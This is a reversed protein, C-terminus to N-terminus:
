VCGTECTGAVSDGYGGKRAGSLAPKEYNDGFAHGSGLAPEGIELRESVCSEDSEVRRTLAEAFGLRVGFYSTLSDLRELSDTAAIHANQEGSGAGEEFLRAERAGERV